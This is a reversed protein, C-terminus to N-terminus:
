QLTVAKCYQDLMAVGAILQEGSADKVIYGAVHQRYAQYIDDPLDSTSLVFIVTSSLKEDKRMEAILEHGNTGPMNLDTVVLYRTQEGSADRLIDLAHDGNRAVVVDVQLSQKRCVRQFHMVDSEDDEVLLIKKLAKSM